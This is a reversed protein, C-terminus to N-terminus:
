NLVFYKENMVNCRLQMWYGCENAYRPVDYSVFYKLILAYSNSLM